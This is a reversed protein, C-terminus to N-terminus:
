DPEASSYGRWFHRCILFGAALGSVASVSLGIVLCLNGVWTPYMISVFLTIPTTVVLALLFIAVAAVLAGIFGLAIRM